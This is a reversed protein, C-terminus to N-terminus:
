KARFVSGGTNGRNKIPKKDTTAHSKALHRPIPRATVSDKNITAQTSEPIHTALARDSATAAEM